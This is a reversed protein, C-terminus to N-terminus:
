NLDAPPADQTLDVDDTEIARALDEWAVCVMAAPRADDRSADGAIPGRYYRLWLGRCPSSKLGRLWGVFLAELMQNSLRRLYRWLLAALVCVSGWGCIVGLLFLSM